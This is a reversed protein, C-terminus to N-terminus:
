RYRKVIQEFSEENSSQQRIRDALEKKKEPDLALAPILDRAFYRLSRPTKVGVERVRVTGTKLDRAIVDLQKGRETQVRDGPKFGESAKNEASIQQRISRNNAAAMEKLKKQIIQEATLKKSAETPLAKLFEERRGSTLKFNNSVADKFRELEENDNQLKDSAVKALSFLEGDSIEDGIAFKIYSDLKEKEIFYKSLGPAIRNLLNKIEFEDKIRKLKVGAKKGKIVDERERLSDAEKIGEDYIEQESSSITEGKIVKDYIRAFQPNRKYVREVYEDEIETKKGKDDYDGAAIKQRMQMAKLEEQRAQAEAKQTEATRQRRARTGPLVERVFKGVAGLGRGAARAASVGSDGINSKIPSTNELLNKKFTGKNYIKEILINKNKLNFVKETKEFLEKDTM